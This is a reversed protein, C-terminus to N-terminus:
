KDLDWSGTKMRNIHGKALRTLMLSRVPDEVKQAELFLIVQEFTRIAEQTNGSAQQTMGLAYMTDANEPQIELANTFDAEARFYEKRSYHNWGSEILEDAMKPTSPETPEVAKDEGVQKAM